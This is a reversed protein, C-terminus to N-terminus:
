ELMLRKLDEIEQDSLPDVRDSHRTKAWATVQDTISGNPDFSRIYQVMPKYFWGTSGNRKRSSGSYYTLEFDKSLDSESVGLLGELLFALTGTRDSGGHCHFYM